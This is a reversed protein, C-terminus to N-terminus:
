LFMGFFTLFKFKDIINIDLRNQKQIVEIINLYFLLDKETQNLKFYWNHM